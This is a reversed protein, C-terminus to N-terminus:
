RHEGEEDRKVGGRGPLDEPRTASLLHGRGRRRFMTQIGWLDSSTSLDGCPDELKSPERRSCVEFQLLKWVQLLILGVSCRPGEAWELLVRDRSQKFSQSRICIALALYRRGFTWTAGRSLGDHCRCVIPLKLVCLSGLMRRSFPDPCCNGVVNVLCSL